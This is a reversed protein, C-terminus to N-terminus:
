QWYPRRPTFPVSRPALGLGLTTSCYHGLTMPDDIEDALKFTEDVDGDVVESRNCLRVRLRSPPM